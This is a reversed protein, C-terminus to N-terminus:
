EVETAQHNHHNAQCAQLNPQSATQSSRGFASVLGACGPGRPAGTGLGRGEEGCRRAAAPRCSLRGHGGPCRATRRELGDGREARRREAEVDARRAALRRALRRPGGPLSALFAGLTASASGTAPDEPVNDLPAFMRADVRSGARTYCFIAFDLGGPYLMAGRRFADTVPMASSLAERDSLEALVFPLGLSAQVPQAGLVPVVGGVVDSVLAGQMVNSQPVLLKCVHHSLLLQRYVLAM